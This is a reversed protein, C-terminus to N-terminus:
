KPRTTPPAVPKASTASTVPKVPTISTAEPKDPIAPAVPKAPPPPVVAPKAAPRAPAVPTVAPRAPTVPAVAPRTPTPPAVAPRVAPKAPTAPTVPAATVAPKPKESPASPKVPAPAVPTPLVLGPHEVPIPPIPPLLSPRPMSLPDPDPNPPDYPRKTGVPPAATYSAPLVDGEYYVKRFPYDVFMVVPLTVTQAILMMPEAFFNYVTPSDPDTRYFFRTPLGQTTGTQYLAVSKQWGRFETAEDARPQDALSAPTRVINPTSCGTTVILLALGAAWAAFTITGRRALRAGAMRKEPTSSIM